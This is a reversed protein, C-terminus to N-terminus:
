AAPAEAITSPAACASHTDAIALLAKLDSLKVVAVEDDPLFGGRELDLYIGGLAPTFSEIGIESWCKSCGRNRGTIRAEIYPVAM